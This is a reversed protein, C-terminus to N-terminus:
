RHLCKCTQSAAQTTTKHLVLNRAEIVGYGMRVLAGGIRERAGTPFRLSFDARSTISRIARLFTLTERDSSM